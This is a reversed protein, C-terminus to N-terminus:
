RRSVSVFGFQISIGFLVGAICSIYPYHYMYWRYSIFSISISIKSISNFRLISTSIVTFDLCSCLHSNLLILISFIIILVM